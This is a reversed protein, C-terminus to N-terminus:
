LRLAAGLAGANPFRDAPDKALCRLLVQELWGPLDAVIERPPVPAEKVHKAFVVTATPGVFPLKGVMLEYAVVGCSYIDSRADVIGATVQEPSMYYPTGLLREDRPGRGALPRAVGFDMLKANGGAELIINEPKIDGHLVNQAHAAELGACLQQLLRLAASRPIRGSQDMMFRLTIGRVYEMSIFHMGDIVQFDYTRLVNPHTVKRALLLEDKLGTLTNSGLRDGSILSPRLAKLAVLDALERDRAKYVVGMGGIGLISLIEYRDGLITGAELLEVSSDRAREALGSDGELIRTEDLDASDSFAASFMTKLDRSVAAPDVLFHAQTSFLGDRERVAVSARDLQGSILERARKSLVLDGPASERLLGDLQQLVPGAACVQRRNGVRLPGLLVKGTCLAAMPPKSELFANGSRSLADMADSVAVLARVPGHGGTFALFVRQGFVAVLQGGHVSAYQQIKNLDSELRHSLAEAQDMGIESFSQRLDIAAVAVEEVKVSGRTLPALEGPEPLHRSLQGVFSQLEKEARLQDLLAGFARSLRGVEDSGGVSFEQDYSGDRAAEAAGVLTQVPKLLRRSLVVALALGVALSALGVAWLVGQLRRLHGTRARRSALAVTAGIQEGSADRLPAALGDFDENGLRLQVKGTDALVSPLGGRSRVQVLLRASEVPNLTSAMVAIGSGGEVLYAIEASSLRKIEAALADDLRHALVLFGILDFQQTLPVAVATYLTGSDLWFGSSTGAEFAADILADTGVVGASTDPADTRAVLEGDADLVLAVDFGVDRQLEALLDLLSRTSNTDVSEQFYSVIAPDRSFWRAQTELQDLRFQVFRAQVSQSQSLDADITERAVRNGFFHAALIASGMCLVILAAVGLLLRTQLSMGRWPQPRPRSSETM